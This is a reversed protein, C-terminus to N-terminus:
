DRQAKNRAADIQANTVDVLKEHLQRLTRQQDAAARKAYQKKGNNHKGKRQGSLRCFRLFIFLNGRKGRQLGFLRREFVCREIPRLGAEQAKHLFQRMRADRRSSEVYLEVISQPATRLRVGVAHFGFLVKPASM